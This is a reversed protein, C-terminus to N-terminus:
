SYIGFKIQQLSQEVLKHGVETDLLDIPRQNGLSAVERYLWEKTENEGLIENATRIVSIFRMLKESTASDLEERKSKKSKYTSIAIHLRALIDKMVYNHPRLFNEIVQPTIGKRIIEIEKIPDGFASVINQATYSM